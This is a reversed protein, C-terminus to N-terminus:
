VTNLIYLYNANFNTKVERLCSLFKRERVFSKRLQTDKIAVTQGKFVGVKTFIQQHSIKTVGTDLSSSTM